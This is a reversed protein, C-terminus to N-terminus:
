QLNGGLDTTLSTQDLAGRFIYVVAMLVVEANHKGSHTGVSFSRAEELPVKLLITRKITDGQEQVERIVRRDFTDNGWPKRERRGLIIGILELLV